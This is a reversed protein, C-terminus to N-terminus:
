EEFQNMMNEMSRVTGSRCQFTCVFAMEMPFYQRCRVFVVM